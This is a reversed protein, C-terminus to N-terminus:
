IISGRMKVHFLEDNAADLIPEFCMFLIATKRKQPLSACDHLIHTKPLAALLRFGPAPLVGFTACLVTCLPGRRAPGKQGECRGRAAFPKLWPARLPLSASCGVRGGAAVAQRGLRLPLPLCGVFAFAEPAQGWQVLPRRPLGKQPTGIAGRGSPGSGSFVLRCLDAPGITQGIEATRLSASTPGFHEGVSPRARSLAIRAFLLCLGLARRLAGLRLKECGAAPADVASGGDRPVAQRAVGAVPAPLGGARGLWAVAALALGRRLLRLRGVDQLPPQRRRRPAWPLLRRPHGRADDALRRRVVLLLAGVARRRRGLRRPSAGGGVGDREGEEWEEEEEGNRKNMNETNRKKRKSMNQEDVEEEEEKKAKKWFIGKRGGTSM